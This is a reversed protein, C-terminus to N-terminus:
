VAPAMVYVRLQIEGLQEDVKGCESGAFEWDPQGILPFRCVPPGGLLGNVM